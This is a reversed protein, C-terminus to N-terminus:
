SALTWPPSNWLNEFNRESKKLFKFIEGINGSNFIERLIGQNGPKTSGTKIRVLIYFIFCQRYCMYHIFVFFWIFYKLCKKSPCDIEDSGDECDPYGNCKLTKSICRDTRCKIEHIGCISPLKPVTLNKFIIYKCFM